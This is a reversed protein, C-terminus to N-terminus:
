QTPRRHAVPVAPVPPDVPRTSFRSFLAALRALAGTGQRASDTPRALSCLLFPDPVQLWSDTKWNILTGGLALSTSVASMRGVYTDAGIVSEVVRAGCDVVARDELIAGPGIIADPRVIVQDGIWCPPVLQARPSIHARRSMWIGPRVESLRVRTPTLASPMWALIAAYWSAYSEFLPFRPAAPLHSM